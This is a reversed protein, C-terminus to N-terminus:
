KIRLVANFFSGPSPSAVLADFTEKTQGPITIVRGAKTVLVISNSEADWDASVLWSSNLPEPM